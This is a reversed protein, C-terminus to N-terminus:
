RDIKSYRVVVWQRHTGWGWFVGVWGYFLLDAGFELCQLCQEIFPRISTTSAVCSSDSTDFGTNCLRHSTYPVCIGIFLRTLMPITLGLVKFLSSRLLSLM